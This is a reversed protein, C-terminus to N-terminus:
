EHLSNEDRIRLPRELTFVFSGKKEYVSISIDIHAFLKLQLDFDRRYQKCSCDSAHLIFLYANSNERRSMYIDFWKM